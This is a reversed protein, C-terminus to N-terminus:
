SNVMFALVILIVLVLGIIAVALGVNSVIPLDLDGGTAMIAIGVGFIAAGVLFLTCGAKAGSDM